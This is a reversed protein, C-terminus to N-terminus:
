LTSDKPTFLGCFALWAHAYAHNANKTAVAAAFALASQYGADFAKRILTSEYSTIDYSNSLAKMLAQLGDDRVCAASFVNAMEKFTM